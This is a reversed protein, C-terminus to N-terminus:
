MVLFFTLNSLNNPLYFFLCKSEPKIFNEGTSVWVEIPYKLVMEPPPPDIKPLKRKKKKSKKKDKKEMENKTFNNEDAANLSSDESKKEKRM